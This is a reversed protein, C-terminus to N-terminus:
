PAMAQRLAVLADLNAFLAPTGCVWNRDPLVVREAEALAPHHLLEEGQSWGPWPEPLVLLDPDATVLEELSLRRGGDEYGARGLVNDFGAAALVEGALSAPGSAYGSAGVAAVTPRRGPASPEAALRADFEALLRAAAAERGLAAGIETIQARVDAFSAAPPVEVVPVGLRRLMEVTARTTFTGALVLDPAHLFIEEALGHNAPIAAAEAAMASSRPDQALSSVSVLQGPAAILMALQDTCLNTSVVRAPAAHVPAALALVLCALARRM